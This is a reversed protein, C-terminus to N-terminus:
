ISMLMPDKQRYLLTIGSIKSKDDNSVSLNLVETSSGLVRRSLGSSTDIFEKHGLNYDYNHNYGVTRVHYESGSKFVGLSYTNFQIIDVPANNSPDWSYDTGNHKPETPETVWYNTSGTSTTYQLGARQYSNDGWAYLKGDNKRLYFVTNGCYINEVKDNFNVNNYKLLVNSGKNFMGSYYNYYGYGSMYMNGDESLVCMVYSSAIVKKFKVNQDKLVKKNAEEITDTWEYYNKVKVPNDLTTNNGLGFQGYGNYGWVWLNGETDIAYISSNLEYIYRIVYDVDDNDNFAVRKFENDKMSIKYVHGEISLFYLEEDNNNTSYKISIMRNKKLFEIDMKTPVQSTYGTTLIIDRGTIYIEGDRTLMYTARSKISVVDICNQLLLKAYHNNSDNRNGIRSKDTDGWAYLNFKDDIVFSANDNIFVRPYTYLENDKNFNAVHLLETSKIYNANTVSIQNSKIYDIDNHRFTAYYVSVNSSDIAHNSDDSIDVYSSTLSNYLKINAYDGNYSVKVNDKDVRILKLEYDVPDFANNQYTITSTITNDYEVTIESGNIISMSSLTATVMNDSKSLTPTIVSIGNKFTLKDKWDIIKTNNGIGFIKLNGNVLSLTLGTIIETYEIDKSKIVEDTGYVDLKYSAVETINFSNNNNNIIAHKVDNKYIIGTWGISVNEGSINSVTLNDNTIITEYDNISSHLMLNINKNISKFAGNTFSYIDNSEDIFYLEYTSSNFILDIFKHGQTDVQAPHSQYSGNINYGTFPLTTNNIQGWVYLNGKNTLVIGKYTAFAMNVFTEGSELTFDVLEGNVDKKDMKGAVISNYKATASDYEITRGLQGYSNHGWSYIADTTLVFTSHSNGAYVKVINNNIGSARSTDIPQANYGTNTNPSSYSRGLEYYYNYGFTKITSGTVVITHNSGTSLLKIGSTGTAVPTSADMNKVEVLSYSNSGSDNGLQGSGGYGAAYLKIGSDTQLEHYIVYNPNAYLNIISQFGTVSSYDNMYYASTTSYSTTGNGYRGYYNYGIAYVVNSDTIFFLERNDHITRVIKGDVASINISDGNLSYVNGDFNYLM